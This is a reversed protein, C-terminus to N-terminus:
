KGKSIRERIEIRIPVLKRQAAKEKEIRQYRVLWWPWALVLVAATLVDIDNAVEDSHLYLAIAGSIVWVWALLVFTAM